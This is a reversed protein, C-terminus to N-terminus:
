ERKKEIRDRLSKVTNWIMRYDKKSINGDHLAEKLEGENLIIIRGDSNKVLELYLLTYSIGNKGYPKLNKIIYYRERLISGSKSYDTRKCWNEGEPFFMQYGTGTTKWKVPPTKEDISFIFSTEEYPISATLGKVGMQSSSIVNEIFAQYLGSAEHYCIRFSDRGDPGTYSRFLRQHARAIVSDLTEFLTDSKIEKASLCIIGAFMSLPIRNEKFLFSHGNLNLIEAARDRATEYDAAGLNVAFKDGAIRFLSALEGLKEEIRQLAKLAAAEGAERGFCTKIFRINVIDFCLVASWDRGKLEEMLGTLNFRRRFVGCEDYLFEQRPFIGYFHRNKRFCGPTEQWVKYFARTFVEQSGYGYYFAVSCVTERTKLLRLAAQTIKRRNVYDMMGYQFVKRFLYKLNSVSYGCFAAINEATIEERLHEEIYQIAHNLIYFSEM